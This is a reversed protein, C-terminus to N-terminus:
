VIRERYCRAALATRNPADFYALLRVVRDKAAGTSIGLREGIQRDTLGQALLKLTEYLAPTLNMPVVM